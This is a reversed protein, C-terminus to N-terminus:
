QTSKLKWASCLEVNVNFFLQAARLHRQEPHKELYKLFADTRQANTINKDQCVLEPLTLGLKKADDVATNAVIYGDGWALAYMQCLQINKKCADYLMNGTVSAGYVSDYLAFSLIIALLKNPM